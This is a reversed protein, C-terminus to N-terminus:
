AWASSRPSPAGSASRGSPVGTSCPEGGSSHRTPDPPPVAAATPVAAPTVARGAEPVAASAHRASTAAADGGALAEAVLEVTHCVRQGLGRRRLSDTLQMRCGPCSTVVVGAGTAAVEAAKRAGIKGSLAPHTLLFSGAGGCCVEASALEVLEHGAVRTVLERPQSRVGQGRALHCPDHYTARLAAPASAAPLDVREVLYETADAARQALAEARPGWDADDALLTPIFHKLASGCTPCATLVAEGHMGDLTGVLAKALEQATDRDGHMLMPVGCCHNEPPLVVEVGAAGLAAVLARGIEPYVYTIMCGAYFVVRRGDPGLKGASGDGADLPRDPLRPLVPKGMGPVPIRPVGLGEEPGPAFALDQLRAAAAAGAKLVKPRKVAAFAAAIAPSVGQRRVVEARAALIVEDIRVGSPCGAVCATCTLCLDLQRLAEDDPEIEGNLLAAAIAVKGRAVAAERHTEKYVPCVAQCNGCRMCTSVHERLGELDYGTGPMLRGGPTVVKGPNLLDQPDLARKIRESIEVGVDGIEWPLYRQKSTGIGHEGSLTGGLRLTAAFLEDIAANVRAMEVPDNKDCLISPHLNGDGAHGVM